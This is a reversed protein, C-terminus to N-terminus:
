FLPMKSPLAVKIVLRERVATIIYLHPYLFDVSEKFIPGLM